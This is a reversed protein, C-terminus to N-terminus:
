SLVGQKRIRLPIAGMTLFTAFDEGSMDDNGPSMEVALGGMPHLAVYGMEVAGTGKNAPIMWCVLAVINNMDRRVLYLGDLLKAMGANAVEMDAIECLIKKAASVDYGRDDFNLFAEYVVDANKTPGTPDPLVM